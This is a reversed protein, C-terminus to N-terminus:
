HTSTKPADLQTGHADDAATRAAAEDRADLRAMDQRLREQYRREAHHMVYFGALGGLATGVVIAASGGGRAGAVQRAM